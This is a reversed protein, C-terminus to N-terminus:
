WQEKWPTGSLLRDSVLPKWWSENRVYWGVTENLAEDFAHEPKWGLQNRIRSSDLSYRFDHAPRDDVFQIMDSPKNLIKLIRNAIEINPIENGASVNYVAGPEGKEAALWIAKCFDLVYIWDRIQMGRGYIPVKRGLLASIITKPIFKEPFQFQGFNNTSRMTVTKLGYTKWYAEVFMDAGAKSASYPSSSRLRDEEEFSVGSSASGYVEDTSIHVFKRVNNKRAADLLTFTGVVNSHLFREPGSISRDVHTEAAFHVVMDIERMLPEVLKSDAVDGKTFRYRPSGQVDSVNEPVAGYSLVDLNVIELTPQMELAFRIFNSGIFGLGGTVLM